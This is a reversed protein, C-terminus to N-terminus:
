IYQISHQMLSKSLSVQTHHPETVRAPIKHVIPFATDPHHFEDQIRLTWNLKEKRLKIIRKEIKFIASQPNPITQM